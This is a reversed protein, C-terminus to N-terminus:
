AIEQADWNKSHGLPDFFGFLATIGPLDTIAMSLHACKSRSSTAVASAVTTLAIIACFSM